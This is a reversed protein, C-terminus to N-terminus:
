RLRRLGTPTLEYIPGDLMDDELVVPPLPPGAVLPPPLTFPDAFSDPAVGYGLDELANLSLISLTATAGLSPSMLEDRLRGAERWHADSSGGGLATEVPVDGTGGLRGWAAVGEAGTYLTDRGTVCGPTCSPNLLLGLDDWGPGLGLVHGMEHLLVEDLLGRSDLSAADASDIRIIGSFPLFRTGGLTDRLCRPGAQGLIRGPGDIPEFTVQILLDDVTTRAAPILCGGPLGATAVDAVDVQILEEWREEAAEIAAREAATPPTTFVLEIDFAPDCSTGSGVYGVNCACSFAGPTNTCTANVDCDDLDEACEDIDTCLVGDGRFGELCACVFDGEGNTCTADDSCDDLDRACEDIDACSTGSGEYGDNCACAFTGPANTCTANVDCDDLGATCEDVDACTRGDGAYGALCACGFSGDLNSCLADRACDDLGEACEDVDACSRGDGAYGANCACRFTGPANTCTADGSCDDLDRACEDVDDCSRGDGEYGAACACEFAGATNTCLANADCDDIGLECEDLDTCSRGDGVYGDGCDCDFSGRTNTCTAEPACDDAGEACEDVDDCTEGDGEFGPLCVCTTGAECTADEACADCPDAVGEDDAGDLPAGDLTAGDLTAGDAPADGGDAGADADDGSGGCSALVLLLSAGLARFAISRETM